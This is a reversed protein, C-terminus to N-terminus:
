WPYVSSFVVGRHFWDGNAKIQIDIEGCYPPNWSEVPPLSKTHNGALQTSIKDLSM